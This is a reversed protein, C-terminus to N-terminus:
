KNYTFLLSAYFSRGEEPYGESITYNKDLVNNIGMQITFWQAFKLSAQTNLLFYEPSINGYSTSFRQSNYEGSVNINARKLFEYEVSAFVKNDPVDIFKIEPNDLNNRQIYSYTVYLRMQKVPLFVLSIDGGMFESKGTNQMQSVGPEVNNELQITNNLKSYFLAPQIILKESFTFDAALEYNMADEAKLDPNPIALGLKYSYRDKMTAFRTKHSINFNVQSKESFRYYFASQIDVAANKNAALETITDLKSNYNQAIISNRLSYSIGPIITIKKTPEVIDEFGVSFTNDATKRVPEGENHERHNDNKLHAAIKLTNNKVANTGAELSIGYTDDNYYSTFSSKANQTTYTDDDFGQLKNKFQDYYIRSKIYSKATLHTRSIFYVSQKDWYPWQWYRLKITKDTGLYVPNGKEGHQSIYNISYEDTQNPAYGAKFSAKIDNSYSNERSYDPQYRSTDFDNSLTIYRRETRSFSGQLYFKGLNSGVKINTNYAKGTMFGAKANVELKSIPKSSLLNITGGIANPGFLISSYGKSVEIKSLDATTFRSLDVYGDYPVYVPIGDVFVPVSRMDFGRLFVTGENRGGVNSLVISPLMSLATAVNTRNQKYIDTSSVILKDSKQTIVVEGLMYIHTEAATSDTTQQASSVIPSFQLFLIGFFLFLRM